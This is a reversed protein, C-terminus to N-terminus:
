EILGLARLGVMIWGEDFPTNLLRVFLGYFFAWAVATLVLTWPWGEKAYFRLFLVFFVPVAVPFGALLILMFFFFVWLSILMIRKRVTADDINAEEATVMKFDVTTTEKTEQKLFLALFVELAALVFVFVAITLPFLAASRPWQLANVFMGASLAMLALAMWSRGTIKM